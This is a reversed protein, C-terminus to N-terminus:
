LNVKAHKQLKNCFVSGRTIDNMNVNKVKKKSKTKLTYKRRSDSISTGNFEQGAGTQTNYMGM